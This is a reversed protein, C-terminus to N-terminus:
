VFALPVVKCIQLVRGSMTGPLRLRKPGRSALRLQLPWSIVHLGGWRMQDGAWRVPKYTPGSALGNADEPVNHFLRGTDASGSWARAVLTLSRDSDQTKRSVWCSGVAKHGGSMQCRQLSYQM